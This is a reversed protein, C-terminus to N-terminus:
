QFAQTIDDLVSADSKAQKAVLSLFLQDWAGAGNFVEAEIIELGGCAYEEFIQIKEADKNAGMISPDNTVALGLCNFIASDFEGKFIHLAVPESSKDFSVRRGEHFGLCAAFVLADKYTLFIKHEEQCLKKLMDEYQKPRRIDSSM